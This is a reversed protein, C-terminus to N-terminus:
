ELLLMSRGPSTETSSNAYTSIHIHNKSIAIPSSEVFGSLNKHCLYTPVQLPVAGHAGHWHYTLILIIARRFLTACYPVSRTVPLQREMAWSNSSVPVTIYEVVNVHM